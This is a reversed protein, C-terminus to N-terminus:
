DENAASLHSWKMEERNKKKNSRRVNGSFIESDPKKTFAKWSVLKNGRSATTLSDTRDVFLLYVKCERRRERIRRRKLLKALRGIGSFVVEAWSSRGHLEENFLGTLGWSLTGTWISLLVTDAWGGFDKLWDRSGLLDASRGLLLWESERLVWRAWAWLVLWCASARGVVLLVILDKDRYRAAM